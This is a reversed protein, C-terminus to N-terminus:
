FLDFVRGTARNRFFNVIFALQCQTVIVRANDVTVTVILKEKIYFEM